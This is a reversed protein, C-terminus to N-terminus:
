RGRTLHALEDDLLEETVSRPRDDAGALLMQETATLGDIPPVGRAVPYRAVWEANRRDQEAQHRLREDERYAEEARRAGILRAADERRLAVRGIADETLEVGERDLLQAWGDPPEPHDLEFYSLPITSEDNVTM